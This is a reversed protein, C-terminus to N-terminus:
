SIIFNDYNHNQMVGDKNWNWVDISQNAIVNFKVIENIYITLDKTDNNTRDNYWTIIEPNSASVPIILMATFLLLIVFKMQYEGNLSCTQQLCLCISHKNM